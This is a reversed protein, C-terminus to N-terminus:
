FLFTITYYLKAVLHLQKIQAYDFGFICYFYIKELWNQETSPEVTNGYQNQTAKVSNHSM